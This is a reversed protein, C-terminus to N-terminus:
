PRGHGMKRPRCNAKGRTVGAPIVGGM